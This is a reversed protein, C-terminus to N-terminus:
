DLLCPIGGCQTNVMDTVAYVHFALTSNFAQPQAKEQAISSCGAALLAAALISAIVWYKWARNGM